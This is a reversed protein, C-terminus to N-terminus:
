AGGAEGTEGSSGPRASVRSIPGFLEPPTALYFLRMAAAHAERRTEGAIERLAEFTQAIRKSIAARYQSVSNSAAACMGRRDLGDRPSNALGERLNRRLAEDADSTARAIGVVAFERAALETAALNYLAPLM